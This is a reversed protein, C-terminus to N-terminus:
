TQLEKRGEGIPAIPARRQKRVYLIGHICGGGQSVRGGGGVRLLVPVEARRARSMAPAACFRAAHLPKTRMNPHLPAACYM